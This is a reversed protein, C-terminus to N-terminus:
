LSRCRRQLESRDLDSRASCQLGRGAISRKVERYVAAWTVLWRLWDPEPFSDRSWTDQEDSRGVFLDRSVRVGNSKSLNRTADEM